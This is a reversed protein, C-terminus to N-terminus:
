SGEGASDELGNDLDVAGGFRDGGDRLGVDEACGNDLDGEGVGNFRGGKDGEDDDFRRRDVDLGGGSVSMSGAGLVFDEGASVALKLFLRMVPTMRTDPSTKKAMAEEAGLTLITMDFRHRIRTPFPKTNPSM